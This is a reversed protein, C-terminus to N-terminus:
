FIEKEKSHSWLDFILHLQAFDCISYQFLVYVKKLFASRLVPPYLLLDIGLFNIILFRISYIAPAEPGSPWM